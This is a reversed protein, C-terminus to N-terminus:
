GTNILPELFVERTVALEVGEGTLVCARHELLPRLGSTDNGVAELGDHAIVSLNRRKPQLPAIVLGFPCDTSELAVLMEDPLLEAAFWIEACALVADGRVLRVRRYSLEGGQRAQDNSKTADAARRELVDARLTAGLGIGNVQCWTELAESVSPAALIHNNLDDLRGSLKDRPGPVAYEARNQIHEM